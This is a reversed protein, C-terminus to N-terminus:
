GSARNKPFAAAPRPESFRESEELARTPDVLLWALSGFFSLLAAVLFSATWGFHLAIYPTLSATVAGGLQAGMNMFGSVSGSSPGGIHRLRRIAPLWDAHEIDAVVAFADEPPVPLTVDARTEIM